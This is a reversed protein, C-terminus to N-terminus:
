RLAPSPPPTTLIPDLGEDILSLLFAFLDEQEQVTLGLPALIREGSSSGPERGELSSYFELVEVLTALQGQHMYPATVAVNRLSPTKFEGREHAHTPLYDLKTRAPGRPDDSWPGMGNFPDRRLTAIGEQRGPDARRGGSASPLGLDHFEMDSFLPGSHCLHCRAKGLFLQLGRRAPMDLAALDEERGSRLGRVFRDFPADRSVLLREYAAIAKGVNVFVETVAHQDPGRMRDWARQHPHYFASAGGHTHGSRAEHERALEHAHDDRPVPRGVPPFRAEDDLEPLPGFVAEYAAGLEADDHLLHAIQLRTSGHELPSELPVLAQAWLSDSRGDWFMWRQWAVNWLAPTHRDLPLVGQAIRQGDAFSREPVHCTACATQGNKSLRTDFFLAQGLRAAAPDDAFRNTPDPPPDGLPSLHLIRQVDQADFPAPVAAQAPHSTAEDAGCGAGCLAAVFLARKL